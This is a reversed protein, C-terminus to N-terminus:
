NGGFEAELQAQLIRSEEDLEDSWQDLYEDRYTKWNDKHLGVADIVYPTDLEIKVLENNEDFDYDYFRVWEVLAEDYNYRFKRGRYDVVKSYKTM